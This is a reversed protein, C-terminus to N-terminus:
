ATGNFHQQQPSNMRHARVLPQLQRFYRRRIPAPLLSTLAKTMKKQFGSDYAVNRYYLEFDSLRRLEAAVTLHGCRPFRLTYLVEVTSIENAAIQMKDLGVRITACGDILAGYTSWFM